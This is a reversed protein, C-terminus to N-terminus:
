ISHAFASLLGGLFDTPYLLCFSVWQEVSSKFQRWLLCKFLPVGKPALINQSQSWNEVLLTEILDQSNQQDTNYPGYGTVYISKVLLVRRKTMNLLALIVSWFARVIYWVASYMIKGHITTNQLDCKWGIETKRWGNHWLITDKNSVASILTAWVWMDTALLALPVTTLRM